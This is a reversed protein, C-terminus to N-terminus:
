EANGRDTDGGGLEDVCGSNLRLRKAGIRSIHENLMRHLVAGIVFQLFHGVIVQLRDEGQQHLFGSMRMAQLFCPRFFAIVRLFCPTFVANM